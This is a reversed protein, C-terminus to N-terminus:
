SMHYYKAREWRTRSIGFIKMGKKLQYSGCVSGHVLCHVLQNVLVTTLWQRFTLLLNPIHKKKILIILPAKWNNSRWWCKVWRVRKSDRATDCFFELIKTDFSRAHISVSRGSTKFNRSSQNANHHQKGWLCFRVACYVYGLVFLACAYFQYNIFTIWIVRWSHIYCIGQTWYLVSMVISVHYQQKIHGITILM